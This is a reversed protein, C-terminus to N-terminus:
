GATRPEALVCAAASEDATPSGSVRASWGDDQPSVKRESHRCRVSAAVDNPGASSRVPVHDGASRAAAMLGIILGGGGMVLVGMKSFAVSAQPAYEAWLAIAFFAGLATVLRDLVRAVAADFPGARSTGRWALRAWGLLLVGTLVVFLSRVARVDLRAVIGISASVVVLLGPGLLTWCRAQPRSPLQDSRVESFPRRTSRRLSGVPGARRRPAHAPVVTRACVHLPIAPNTRPGARVIESDAPAIGYSAVTDQVLGDGRRRAPLSADTTDILRERDPRLELYTSEYEPSGLPEREM